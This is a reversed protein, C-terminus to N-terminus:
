RLGDDGYTIVVSVTGPATGSPKGPVLPGRGFPGPAPLPGRPGPPAGPLFRPRPSRRGPGFAAVVAFLSNGGGAIGSSSM